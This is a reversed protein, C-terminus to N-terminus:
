VQEEMRELFARVEDPNKLRYRAHTRSFDGVRVTIGHKLAVFAPEDTLDDGVYIPLFSDPLTRMFERMAVGKGRVQRPVIESAHNSQIVGFDSGLSAVLRRVRARVRRQSESSMGRFHVAYSIGKDEILIGPFLKQLPELAAPLKRIAAKIRPSLPPRGNEWGFLGLLKVRPMPFYERLVANRRGSVIALRVRPHRSLRMLIRRSQEGLKVDEPRDYYGVLTGDFDLFIWISSAKQIRRSLHGWCSECDLLNPVGNQTQTM